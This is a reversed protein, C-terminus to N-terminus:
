KRARLYRLSEGLSCGARHETRGAAGSPPSQKSLHFQQCISVMFTVASDLQKQYKFFVELKSHSSGRAPSVSRPAAGSCSEWSGRTHSSCVAPRPHLSLFGSHFQGWFSGLLSQPCHLLPNGHKGSTTQCKAQSVWAPFCCYSSLSPRLQHKKANHPAPNHCTLKPWSVTDLM